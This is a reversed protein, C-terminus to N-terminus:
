RVPFLFSWSILLRAYVSTKGSWWYPHGEEFPWGGRESLHWGSGAAWRLLYHRCQLYGGFTASTPSVCPSTEAQSAQSDLCGPACTRPFTNWSFPASFFCIAVFKNIKSLRIMRFGLWLCRRQCERIQEASHWLPWVSAEALPLDM